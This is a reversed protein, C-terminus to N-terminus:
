SPASRTPMSRCVSGACASAARRLRPRYNPRYARPKPWGRGGHVIWFRINDLEGRTSLARWALIGAGRHDPHTDQPSPALVLTPKVQDLVRQFDRELDVGDYEAGPDVAGDYVVSDAGTFKSRWPTNPYYHDLLLPLLGRDPYGLFFLSDTRPGASGSRQASRRRPAGRIGPLKGTRPHLKREAVMASWRFADGNTIWV